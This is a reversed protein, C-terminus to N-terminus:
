GQRDITAIAKLIKNTNLKFYSGLALLGFGFISYIAITCLLLLVHVRDSFNALLIFGALLFFEVAAAGLILWRYRRESQEIRDLAARRISDLKTEESM